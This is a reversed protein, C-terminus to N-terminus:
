IRAAIADGMGSCGVKTLGAAEMPDKPMLDVSRYGDHLTKKVANEIDDAEKTM